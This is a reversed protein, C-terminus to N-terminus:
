WLRSIFCGSSKINVCRNNKNNSCKNICKNGVLNSGTCHLEVNKLSSLYNLVNDDAHYTKTYKGSRSIIFKGFSKIKKVDGAMCAHHPILLYRYTFDEFDDYNLDGPFVVDYDKNKILCEPYSNCIYCSNRLIYIGVLLSCRNLNKNFETQYIDFIINNIKFEGIQIKSQSIHKHKM